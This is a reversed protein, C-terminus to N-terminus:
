FQAPDASQVEGVGANNVGTVSILASKHILNLVASDFHLVSSILVGLFFLLVHIFQFNPLLEIIKLKLLSRQQFINGLHFDHANKLM